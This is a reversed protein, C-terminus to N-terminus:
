GQTSDLIDKLTSELPRFTNQPVYREMKSTDIKLGKFSNTLNPQSIIEADLGELDLLTQIIEKVQTDKSPAINFIEFKSNLSSNLLIPFTKVVDRADTFRRYTDIPGVELTRGGAKKLAKIKKCIDSTVFGPPQNPGICSYLRGVVGRIHRHNFTFNKLTEEALYKTFGYPGEPKVEASENVVELQNGYVHVSSALFFNVPSDLSALAELLYQTTLTNQFFYSEFPIENTIKAIGALHFVRNPKLRQIIEYVKSKDTLDMSISLFEKSPPADLACGALTEDPWNAKSHPMLFQGLFGSSGTVLTTM